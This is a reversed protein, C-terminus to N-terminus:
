PIFVFENANLLARTLENWGVDAIMQLATDTEDADPLRGFCLKWAAAIRAEDTAAENHLRKSFLKAQQLVFRSNLLGMAQLPTTSRSRQAVLQSSDPCDFPGFVSDREQRVRTMYIMRRWQDPGFSKRPFYHRVNELEVEFASFGPGGGKHQLQGSVALISDRIGEAELRRPPFRWLLRSDADVALSEEDPRSSQQWTLSLLITRHMHRISWGSSIFDTALWDLLEPHTPPVGNSGFDSPTVEERPAMPDGRYLRYTTEPRSFTGAWIQRPASYVDRVKLLRNLSELTDRASKAEGETANSLDLTIEVSRTKHSRRTGSDSVTTWKKADESVDISYEVALRDSYKGKRDRSWRVADVKSTQPLEIQVWVNAPRDAIWSHENGYIGDNIHALKHFPHLFDGSSTAIAGESALAVNRGDCLVELEDLCPQSSSSAQINFRVFRIATAPFRDENVGPQVAPRLPLTGEESSALYPKLQKSLQQIEGDLALLRQSDDEMPPVHRNAYNVGAFVAQMSYYDTQTIPDFKHNHCRACGTSLGLFTAGTASIIGDLEDQRQILGLQKDQGKVIDHPGAVLFGTGVPEQLVDGALQAKVFKDYPRDANFSDIVWDRFQWANPRERNTEYGNTEAFRILDLWFTALREGYRPSHLVTDVVQQWADPQDDALFADIQKPTPPLGHMVLYLRRILRERPAPESMCLGAQHLENAIFADIPSSHETNPIQPTVLPQFSWHTLREQEIGTATRDWFEKDNLWEKLTQIEEATLQEDDPPMRMTPDASTVRELLYSRQADGPVVTPEGSDGGRYVLEPTDLRLAAEASDEGHCSTCKQSLLALARAEITEDATLQEPYQAIVVFAACVPVLLAISQSRSARKLM